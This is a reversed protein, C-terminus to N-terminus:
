KFNKKIPPSKGHAAVEDLGDIILNQAEPVIPESVMTLNTAIYIDASVQRSYNEVLESKGSGPEGLVVLPAESNFFEESTHIKEEGDITVAIRRQIFEM